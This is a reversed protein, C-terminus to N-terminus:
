SILRALWAAFLLVVLAATAIWPLRGGLPAGTPSRLAWARYPIQAAVFLAVLWGLPHVALSAALNGHALHVFSRTLGCGPCDIGLLVKSQCVEPLPWQPVFRVAVRQDPRVQLLFAAVLVCVALGLVLRHYESFDHPRTAVISTRDAAACNLALSSDSRM